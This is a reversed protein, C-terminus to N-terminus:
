YNFLTKPIGDKTTRNRQSMFWMVYIYVIYIKEMHIIEEDAQKYQHENKLSNM